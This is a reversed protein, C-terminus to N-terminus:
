REWVYKRSIIKNQVKPISYSVVRQSNKKANDYAGPGVNFYRNGVIHLRRKAKGISFKTKKMMDEEISKHLAKAGEYEM